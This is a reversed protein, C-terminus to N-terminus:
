WATGRVPRDGTPYLMETFYRAHFGGYYKPYGGMWVDYPSYTSIGSPLRDAESPRTSTSRQPAAFWSTASRAPCCRSHFAVPWPSHDGPLNHWSSVQDKHTPDKHTPDNHTPDNHTPDNHTSDEHTSRLAPRGRPRSLPPFAALVAPSFM